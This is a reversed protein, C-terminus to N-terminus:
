RIKALKQEAATERATVLWRVCSVSIIKGAKLSPFRWVRFRKLM